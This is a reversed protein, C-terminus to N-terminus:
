FSFDVPNPEVLSRLRRPNYIYSVYIPIGRKLSKWQNQPEELKLAPIEEYNPNFAWKGEELRYYCEGKTREYDESIEEVDIARLRSIINKKESPNIITVNYMPPIIILDHKQARIMIAEKIQEHEERSQQLFFEAYGEAIQYIEPYRFGNEAVSRRYGITKNFEEGLFGPLIVVIDFQIDDWYEKDEIKKVEQYLHFVEQNEEDKGWKPEKVYNRLDKKQFQIINKVDIENSNYSVKGEDSEIPLGISDRIDMAIKEHL